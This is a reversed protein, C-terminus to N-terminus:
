PRARRERAVPVPTGFSERGSYQSALAERASSGAAPGAAASSAGGAGFNVAAAIAAIVVVLAALPVLAFTKKRM